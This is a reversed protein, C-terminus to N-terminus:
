WPRLISMRVMDYYKGGVCYEAKLVGEFDFGLKLYMAQADRNDRRVILWLKILGVEGFALDILRRVATPGYGRGQADKKIVIFLRGNKAPWYIQNVSCQGVYDDGVFISYARDNKSALLTELYAREEEEAIARQHNAFYQMVERDNVWTMVHGLHDMRLPELRLEPEDSMAHSSAMVGRRDALRPSSRSADNYSGSLIVV